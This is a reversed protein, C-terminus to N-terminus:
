YQLTAQCIFTRGRLSNLKDNTLNKYQVWEGKVAIVEMDYKKYSTSDFPNPNLTEYTWVQGVRIVIKEDSIFEQIVLFDCEDTTDVVVSDMVEIINQQIPTENFLFGIVSATGTIVMIALMFNRM